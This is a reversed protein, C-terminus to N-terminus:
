PRESIRTMIPILISIADKMGTGVTIANPIINNIRAADIIADIIQGEFDPSAFECEQYRPIPRTQV